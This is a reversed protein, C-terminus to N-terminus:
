IPIMLILRVQFSFRGKGNGLKDATVTVVTKPTIPDNSEIIIYATSVKLYLDANATVQIQGSEGTGLDGDKSDITLWLPQEPPISGKLFLTHERGTDM